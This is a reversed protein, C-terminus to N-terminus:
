SNAYPLTLTICLGGLKSNTLEVSGGYEGVLEAVIALGLGTGPKSEDLRKGRELADKRQNEPLGPGDDEVSLAFMPHVSDADAVEKNLTKCSLVVRKQAWKCANELINGVMEEIDEKEGIFIIEPEEMSFSIEKAFNLKGMVRVLRELLPRIPTRYIVSDRQAAIRARQLYRDIQSRMIDTQEKLLKVNLPNRDLPKSASQDIENSIVSLPTKLSHALNGVQVRFREVIRQNNDILANMEGVLPMVELPLDTDLHNAKGARIDALSHRIRQLPRLSIYIIVLNILISAAGFLSLYLLLTKKFKELEARTEDINGMVRFRAVRNKNDLIIDSEVVRLRQGEPGKTRYSRFFKPDFPDTKESPSAVKKVGLSSSTLRGKLNGSLAVVEWYWGSSPDSYRIDGLEPNGQLKGDSSVNVSSILSYLHATLIRELYDNNSQRYFVLSVVSIFALAAIIWLTLFINVRLGLSKSITKFFLKWNTEGKVTEM